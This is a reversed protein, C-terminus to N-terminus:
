SGIAREGALAAAGVSDKPNQNVAFEDLSKEVRPVQESTLTLRFDVRATKRSRETIDIVEANTVPM